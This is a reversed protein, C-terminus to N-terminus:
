CSPTSWRRSRNWSCCSCRPALVRQKSGGSCSLVGVGACVRYVCRRRLVCARVFAAVLARRVMAHDVDHGWQAWVCVVAAACLLAALALTTGSRHCRAAPRSREMIRMRRVLLRGAHGRYNRQVIGAAIHHM